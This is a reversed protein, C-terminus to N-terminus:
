DFFEQSMTNVIHQKNQLWELEIVNHKHWWRLKYELSGEIHNKDM